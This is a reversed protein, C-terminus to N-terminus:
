YYPYESWHGKENEEASLAVTPKKPFSKTEKSIKERRLRNKELQWEKIHDGPNVEM